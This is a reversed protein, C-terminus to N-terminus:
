RRLEPIRSVPDREMLAEHAAHIQAQVDRLARFAALESVDANHASFLDSELTNTRKNFSTFRGFWYCDGEYGLDLEDSTSGTSPFDAYLRRALRDRRTETSPIGYGHAYLDRLERLAGFGAENVNFPAALVKKYFLEEWDRYWLNGNPFVWPESETLLAAALRALTVEALAVARSIAALGADGEVSYADMGLEETVGTTPAGGDYTGDFHSMREEWREKFERNATRVLYRHEKVIRELEEDFEPIIWRIATRETLFAVGRM